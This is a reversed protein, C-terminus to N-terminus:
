ARSIAREFQQGQIKISQAAQTDRERKTRAIKRKNACFHQCFGIRQQPVPAISRPATAPARSPQSLSRPVQQPASRAPESLWRM